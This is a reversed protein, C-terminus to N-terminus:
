WDEEEEEEEQIASQGVLEPRLAELGEKVKASTPNGHSFSESAIYKIIYEDGEKAMELLENLSQPEIQGVARVAAVRIDLTQTNDMAIAMLKDHAQVIGFRGLADICPRRVADSRNELSDICAKAVQTVDMYNIKALHPDIQALTEAAIVSLEESRKKSMIPTGRRAAIGEILKRFDGGADEVPVYGKVNEFGEFAQKDQERRSRSTIMAAALPRARPDAMM